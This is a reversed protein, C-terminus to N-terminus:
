SPATRYIHWHLIAAASRHPMPHEKSHNNALWLSYAIGGRVCLGM